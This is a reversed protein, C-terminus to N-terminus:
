RHAHRQSREPEDPRSRHIRVGDAVVGALVLVMGVIVVLHALHEALPFGAVITANAQSVFGHETLDLLLGFAIVALGLRTPGPLPRPDPAPDVDHM